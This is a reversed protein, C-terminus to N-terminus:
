QLHKCEELTNKWFQMRDQYEQTMEMRLETDIKMYKHHEPTVADWKVDDLYESNQEPTPDLFKVFNTWMELMRASIGKM